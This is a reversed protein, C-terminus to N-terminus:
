WRGGTNDSGDPPRRLDGESQAGRESSSYAGLAFCGPRYTTRQWLAGAGCMLHRPMPFRAAHNVHFRVDVVRREALSTSLAFLIIRQDPWSLELRAAGALSLSFPRPGYGERAILTM